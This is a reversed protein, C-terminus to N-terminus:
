SIGSAAFVSLVRIRHMRADICSLAARMTAGTTIVDDALVIRYPLETGEKLRIVIRQREPRNRNKQDGHDKKEFCDLVPLGTQAYMEALHHFGRERIREETSPMLLVTYGRYKRRIRNRHRYLFVDKLAEDGLEKYQRLVSSAADNYRYLVDARYLGIRVDDTNKRWEARCVSCLVDDDTFIGSLTRETDKGCWLCRM